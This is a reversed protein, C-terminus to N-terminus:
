VRKHLLLYALRAAHANYYVDDGEPVIISAYLLRTFPFLHTLEEAPRM